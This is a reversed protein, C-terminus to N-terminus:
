YICLYSTPSYKQHSKEEDKKKNKIKFSCVTAREGAHIESANSPFSESSIEGKPFNEKKKAPM